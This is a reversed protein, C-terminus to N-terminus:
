EREERQQRDQRAAEVAARLGRAWLRAAPANPAVLDLSKADPGHLVSFCCEEVLLAPRQPDGRQRAKEEQRGAREFVDTRWGDRVSGITLVDM